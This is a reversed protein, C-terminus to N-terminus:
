LYQLFGGAWCSSLLYGASCYFDRWWSNIMSKRRPLHALEPLAIYYAVESLRKMRSLSEELLYQTLGLLNGDSSTM